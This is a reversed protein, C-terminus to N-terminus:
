TDKEVSDETEEKVPETAPEEEELDQGNYQECGNLHIEYNRFLGSITLTGKQGKGKLSAEYKSDLRNYSVAKETNGVAITIDGTTEGSLSVVEVNCAVGKPFWLEVEKITAEKILNNGESTIGEENVLINGYEDVPIYGLTGETSSVFYNLPAYESYMGPAVYEEPDYNFLTTDVAPFLVQENFDTDEDWSSGKVIRVVGLGSIRYYGSVFYDPVEIRYLFDQLTDYEVSAYLEYAKFAHMNAPVNYHGFYTGNYVELDYIKDKVVGTLIGDSIMDTTIQTGGIKDLLVSDCGVNYVDYFDSDPLISNDDKGTLIYKRGNVLSRIDFCPITYGLDYMREWVMYDLLGTTSYYMLECGDYLTPINLENESTFFWMRNPNVYTKDDNESAADNCFYNVIPYYYGNQVVYFAGDILSSEFDESKSSVGYISTQGQYEGSENMVPVPAEIEEKGFNFNLDCGCLSVGLLVTMLLIGLKKRLM